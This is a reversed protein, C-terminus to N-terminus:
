NITTKCKLCIRTKGGAKQVKYGVRSQQKCTSCIISVNAVPLPKEIDVIGGQKGEGQPKVHKKYKNVGEILLKHSRPFTKTIKGTRGRDKGATIKVTDGVKLKM